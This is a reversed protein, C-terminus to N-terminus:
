INLHLRNPTRHLGCGVLRPTKATTIIMTPATTKLKLVRLLSSRASGIYEFGDFFVHNKRKNRFLGSYM